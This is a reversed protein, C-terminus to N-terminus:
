IAVIGRKIAFMALGVRTKVDFKEFLTDRLQDVARPNLGMKAAIEKYTLESCAFRLFTLEQISILAKELAMRQGDGTRFLGALKGSINASYYSGTKVVCDIASFLESPEADKKLFGNIGTQLLQILAQDSDYMTLMLINVSPYNKRILASTEFGDMVPMNLDLLVIDPLEKEKIKQLLERGNGAEFIVMCNKFDAILKIISCRVLVHDDAIAIKIIREGSQM